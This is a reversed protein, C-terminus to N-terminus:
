DPHTGRPSASRRGDESLSGTITEGRKRRTTRGREEAGEEQHELSPVNPSSAARRLREGDRDRVRESMGRLCSYGAPIERIFEVSEFQGRVYGQREPCEPHDHLPRSIM